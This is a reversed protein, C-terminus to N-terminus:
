WLKVQLDLTSNTRGAGGLRYRQKSQTTTAMPWSYIPPARIPSSGKVEFPQVASSYRVLRRQLERVRESSDQSGLSQLAPSRAPTRHRSQSTVTMVLKPVRALSLFCDHGELRAPMDINTTLKM